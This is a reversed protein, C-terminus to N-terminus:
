RRLVTTVTVALRGASKREAGTRQGRRLLEEMTDMHIAVVAAVDYAVPLFYGRADASWPVIAACAFGRGTRQKRETLV